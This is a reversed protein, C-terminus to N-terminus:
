QPMTKSEKLLRLARLPLLDFRLVTLVTAHQQVHELSRMISRTMPPVEPDPGILNMGHSVQLYADGNDEIWAERRDILCLRCPPPTDMPAGAIRAEVCAAAHVWSVGVRNLLRAAAIANIALFDSAEAVVSARILEPTTWMRRRGGGGLSEYSPRLWGTAIVKKLLPVSGLLSASLLEDDTWLQPRSAPPEGNGNM